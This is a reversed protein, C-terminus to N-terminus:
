CFKSSSIKRDFGLYNREKERRCKECYLLFFQVAGWASLFRDYHQKVMQGPVTTELSHEASGLPDVALEWPLQPCM